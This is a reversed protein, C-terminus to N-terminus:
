ADILRQFNFTSIDLESQGTTVLHMVVEGIAASHKFGHGSCPSAVIVNDHEPHFDILFRSDPTMTYMCTASRLCARGVHRLRNEVNTQYFREIEDSSVHRDIAEPSAIVIHEESAIKIGGAPGDIAPFAYAGSDYAWGLRPMDRYQEYASSDEMGFWFLTLRQLEFTDAYEPVVQKIWPGAAVVLEDASYQDRDTTVTVSRGDSVFSEITENYHLDVGCREALALQSEVVREPRLYGGEAEFYGRQDDSVILMPYRERLQDASLVEHEVRHTRAAEVTAQFPDEVNHYGASGAKGIMLGGCQNFLEQGTQEELERYLRHSRRVMSVLEAGEFTAVRTARSDGHTSGEGHPPRYRDIGLTRVGAKGLQYVAASGMAGLGAVIVEHGRSVM